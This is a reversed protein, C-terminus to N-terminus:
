REKRAIASRSCILDILVPGEEVSLRVRPVYLPLSPQWTPPLNFLDKETCSIWDANSHVAEHDLAQVESMSLFHHDRFKRKGV